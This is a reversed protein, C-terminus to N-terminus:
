HQKCSPCYYENRRAFQQIGHGDVYKDYRNNEAHPRQDSCECCQPTTNLFCYHGCKKHQQGKHATKKMASASALIFALITRPTTITEENHVEHDLKTPLRRENNENRYVTSIHNTQIDASPLKITSYDVTNKTMHYLRSAEELNYSVNYEHQQHLPYRCIPCENLRNHGFTHDICTSHGCLFTTPRHVLSYEEYCIPCRSWDDNM